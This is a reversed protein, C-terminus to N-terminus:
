YAPCCHIETGRGHKDNQGKENNGTFYGSAVCADNLFCIWM